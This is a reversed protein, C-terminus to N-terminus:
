QSTQRGSFGSHTNFGQKKPLPQVDGASLFYLINQKGKSGSAVNEKM